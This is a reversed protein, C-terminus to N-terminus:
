NESITAYRIGRELMEEYPSMDAGPYLIPISTVIETIAPMIGKKLINSLREKEFGEANHKKYLLTKYEKILLYFATKTYIEYGCGICSSRDYNECVVGMAIKVCYLGKDKAHAGDTVIVQLVQHLQERSINGLFTKVIIEAQMMSNRVCDTIEEIEMPTLGIQSILKTQNSVGLKKYKEGAYKELLLAPIFGFIGREFMERLIFEPKYGTFNEDRLYVDTIDSLTGIGGKHSRALSALMYGNPKGTKSDAVAEIGQLFAKNAKRTRFYRKGSASVFDEGFFLDLLSNEAFSSIFPTGDKHHSLALALMVGFESKLSEPIFIKITPVNKVRETKHPKMALTEILFVWSEAVSRAEEDTFTGSIIKEKIIEESESLIPVPLREIDTKRLASVFHLAVFLWLKACKNSATAKKILENSEWSEASFTVYAMKAFRDLEFAANDRDIFSKKNVSKKYTWVLHINNQKLVNIFDIFEGIGETGLCESAEDLLQQIKLDGYRTIEEDINSFVFDLVRLSSATRYKNSAMFEKYRSCTEPYLKDYHELLMGLKEIDSKGYGQLWLSLGPIVRSMDDLYIDDGKGKVQQGFWSNADMFDLLDDRCKRIDRYSSDMEKAILDVHEYLTIIRDM